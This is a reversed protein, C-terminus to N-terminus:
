RVWRRPKAWAPTSALPAPRGPWQAPLSPPGCLCCRWRRAARAPPPPRPPPPPPAACRESTCLTPPAPLVHTLECQWLPPGGSPRAARGLFVMGHRLAHGGFQGLWAGVGERGQRSSTALPRRCCGIRRWSHSIAPAAGHGGTPALWSASRRRRRPGGAPSTHPHLRASLPATTRNGSSTCYQPAVCRHNDVAAAEQAAAARQKVSGQRWGTPRQAGQPACRCSDQLRLLMGFFSSDGPLLDAALELRGGLVAPAAGGDLPQLQLFRRPKVVAALMSLLPPHTPPHTPPWASPRAPSTGHLHVFYQAMCCLRQKRGSLRRREGPRLVLGRQGSDREYTSSLALLRWEAAESPEPAREAVLDATSAVAAVAAVADDAPALAALADAASAYRWVVDLELCGTCSPQLPPATLLQKGPVM